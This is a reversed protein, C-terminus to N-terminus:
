AYYGAVLGNEGNSTKARLQEISTEAWTFAANLGLDPSVIETLTKEMDRFRAAHDAYIRPLSEDLEALKAELAANTATDKTEGVALLLPYTRGSDTKPDVRLRFELPHTEPREQYQAMVGHTSGPM